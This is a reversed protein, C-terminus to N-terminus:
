SARASLSQDPRATVYGVFEGWSWVTSILVLAPFARLWAGTYRRTRVVHSTVRMLLVAPLLACLVMLKLRQTASMGEARTSGFM